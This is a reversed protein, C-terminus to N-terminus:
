KLNEQLQKIDPDSLFCFCIDRIPLNILPICFEFLKKLFFMFFLIGGFHLFIVLSIWLIFFHSKGNLFDRM